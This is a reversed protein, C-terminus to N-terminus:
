QQAVLPVEVPQIENGMQERVTPARCFCRCHELSVTGQAKQEERVYASLSPFYQGKVPIETQPIQHPTTM